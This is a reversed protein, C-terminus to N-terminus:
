ITFSGGEFQLLKQIGSTLAARGQQIEKWADQRLLNMQPPIFQNGWYQTHCNGLRDFMPNLLNVIQAAAQVQDFRQKSSSHTCDIRVFGGSSASGFPNPIGLAGFPDKFFSM